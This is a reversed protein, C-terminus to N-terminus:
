PARARLDDPRYAPQDRLRSLQERWGAIRERTPEPLQRSVALYLDTSILPLPLAEIAPQGAALALYEERSMAAMDIRKALLKALLQENASAKDDFAVGLGQLKETLTTVGRRVGVVIGAPILHQGDWDAAEGRRRLLLFQIRGLRAASDLQGHPGIPFDMTELYTPIAPLPMADAEGRALAQRCRASPLRLLTVQLGAERGADALLRNFIGPRNADHHIYPPADIDPLCVRIPVPPAAAASLGASAVLGALWARTVRIFSM